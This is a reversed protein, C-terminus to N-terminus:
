QRSSVHLGFLGSVPDVALETEFNKAHQFSDISRQIQWQQFQLTPKLRCTQSNPTAPKLRSNLPPSSNYHNQFRLKAANHVVTDSFIEPAIGQSLKDPHWTCRSICQLGVCSIRTGVEMATKYPKTEVRKRTRAAPILARVLVRFSCCRWM